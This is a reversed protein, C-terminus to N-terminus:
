YTNANCKTYILVEFKFSSRPDGNKQRHYEMKADNTREVLQFTPGQLMHKSGTLGLARWELFMVNQGDEIAHILSIEIRAVPFPKGGNKRQNEGRDDNYRGFSRTWKKIYITEAFVASQGLTTIIVLLSLYNALKM